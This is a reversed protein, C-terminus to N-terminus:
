NPANKSGQKISADLGIQQFQYDILPKLDVEGLMMAVNVERDDNTIALLPIEYESELTTDGCEITMWMSYDYEMELKDADDIYKHEEGEVHVGWGSRDELKLLSEELREVAGEDLLPLLDVRQCLLKSLQLQEQEGPCVSSASEEPEYDFVATVSDKVLDSDGEEDLSILYSIPLECEHLM